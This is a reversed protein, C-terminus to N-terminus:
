HKCIPVIGHKDLIKKQESNPQYKMVFEYRSPDKKFSDLENNLRFEWDNIDLFDDLDIKIKSGYKKIIYGCILCEAFESKCFNFKYTPHTRDIDQCENCYSNTYCISCKNLADDRGCQCCIYSKDHSDYCDRIKKAIEKANEQRIENM